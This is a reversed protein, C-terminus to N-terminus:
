LQEAAFGKTHHATEHAVTRSLEFHPPLGFFTSGEHLDKGAMKREGGGSRAQASDPRATSHVLELVLKDLLRLTQTFHPQFDEPQRELVAQDSGVSSQNGDVGLYRHIGGLADSCHLNLRGSSTM